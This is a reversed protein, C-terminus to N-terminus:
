VTGCQFSRKVGEAWRFRCCGRYNNSNREWPEEGKHRGLRVSAQQLSQHLAPATHWEASQEGLGGKQSEKKPQVRVSKHVGGGDGFLVTWVAWRKRAARLTRGPSRPPWPTAGRCEAEM